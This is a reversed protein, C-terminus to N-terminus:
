IHILLGPSVNWDMNDETRISVTKKNLRIIFGRKQEGSSTQFKVRDGIHFNSMVMTSKAQSILKLREVITRNLFILDEETLREIMKIIDKCNVYNIDNM